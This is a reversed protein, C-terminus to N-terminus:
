LNVQTAYVVKTDMLLITKNKDVPVRVIAQFNKKTDVGFRKIGDITKETMSNNLFLNCVGETGFWQCGSFNIFIGKDGTFDPVSGKDIRTIMGYNLRNWKPEFLEDRGEVKIEYKNYIKGELGTEEPMYKKPDDLEYNCPLIDKNRMLKRVPDLPIPGGISLIDKTEIANIFTDGYDILHHSDYLIQNRYLGIAGALQNSVRCDNTDIEPVSKANSTVLEFDMNVLQGDKDKKHGRMLIFNNTSFGLAKRFPNRLRDNINLSLDTVVKGVAEGVAAGVAAGMVTANIGSVPYSSNIHAGVFAGAASGVVAPTIGALTKGSKNNIVPYNITKDMLVLSHRRLFEEM